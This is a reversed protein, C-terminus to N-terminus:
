YLFRKYEINYFLSKYPNFLDPYTSISQYMLPISILFIMTVILIREHNTRFILLQASVLFSEMINFYLSGRSVLILLSSSFLLYLIIGFFYGNYLLKYYSLKKSLINFNVTFLVLLSIRKLLGFVSLSAENLAEKAAGSYYVTKESGVSGLVLGMKDFLYKPLSTMGILFSALLLIFLFPKKFEKNFFYYAVFLVASSHFLFAFTVGLFFRIPRKREIYTLSFLCIALAILQRNSGVIGLSVSYFFMFSVFTYPSYFSATRLIVGYFFMAHILLFLSYELSFNNLTFTLLGYGIEYNNLSNILVIEIDNVSEYHELYNNWDTGTEWRLGIQFVVVIYLLFYISKRQISTPNITVEWLASLFILFLTFLYIEM